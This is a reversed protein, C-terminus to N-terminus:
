QMVPFGSKAIIHQNDADKERVKHKRVEELEEQLSSIRVSKIAEKKPGIMFIQNREPSTM